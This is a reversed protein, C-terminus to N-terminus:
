RFATERNVPGLYAQSVSGGDKGLPQKGISQVWTQRLVQLKQGDHLPFIQLIMKKSQLVPVINVYVVWHLFDNVVYHIFFFINVEQMFVIAYLICIWLNM